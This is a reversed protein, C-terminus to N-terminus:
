DLITDKTIEANDWDFIRANRRILSEKFSDVLDLLFLRYGYQVCTQYIEKILKKGIGHGHLRFPILINTIDVIHQGQHHLLLRILPMANIEFQNCYIDKKCEEQDKLDYKEIFDFIVKLIYRPIMYEISVDEVKYFMQESVYLKYHHGNDFIYNVILEGKDLVRVFYYGDKHIGFLEDKIDPCLPHQSNWAVDKKFKDLITEKATM